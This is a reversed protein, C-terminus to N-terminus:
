PSCLSLFFALLLMPSPSLNFASKGGRVRQSEASATLSSAAEDAARVSLAAAEEEEAMAQRLAHQIALAAFEATGNDQRSEFPMAQQREAEQADAAAEREAAVEVDGQADEDGPSVM